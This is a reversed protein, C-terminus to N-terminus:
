SRMGFRQVGGPPVPVCRSCRVGDIAFVVAFALALELSLMLNRGKRKWLPKLLHRIM